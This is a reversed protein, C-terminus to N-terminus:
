FRRILVVGAAILVIGAIRALNVEKVPVGLLGFHDIVLTVIMQGAIILSFTMAVGLRPVLTVGVTVFFAGFLGGAWAIPPADKASALSGLSVGSILLYFLLAVTGVVFSLFASLVPSGVVVAMKNNTAAQTPMMAGAALAVLIYLYINSM